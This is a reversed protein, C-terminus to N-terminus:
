GSVAFRDIAERLQAYTKPLTQEKIRALRNSVSSDFVTDGIRIVIGGLISEDVACDLDVDCSMKRQLQDQISHRQEDSLPAATTVHVAVRNRMENFKQRAARRIHRLCDLRGHRGVVKLFTLLLESTRSGFVRDLMTEKEDISVRPSSLTTELEPSDEFVQDVIADLEDVVTDSLQQQEAAAILSSAYVEGLRQKDINVEQGSAQDSTM